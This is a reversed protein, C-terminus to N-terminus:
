SSNVKSMLIYKVVDIQLLTFAPRENTFREIFEMIVSAYRVFDREAVSVLILKNTKWDSDRCFLPLKCRFVTARLKPEDSWVLIHRSLINPWSGDQVPDNKLTNWLPATRQSSSLWFGVSFFCCFGVWCRLCCCTTATLVKDKIINLGNSLLKWKFPLPKSKLKVFPNAGMTCSLVFLETEGSIIWKPM